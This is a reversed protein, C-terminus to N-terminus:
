MPLLCVLFMGCRRRRRRGRRRSGSRNKSLINNDLYAKAGARVKKIKLSKRIRARLKYL